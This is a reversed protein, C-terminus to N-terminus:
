ACSQSQFHVQLLLCHADMVMGNLWAAPKLTRLDAGQLCVDMTKESVQCITENELGPHWAAEPSDVLCYTAHLELAEWQSEEEDADGTFDIVERRTPAAQGAAPHAEQSICASAQSPPTTVDKEAVPIAPIDGGHQYLPEYSGEGVCVADQALQVVQQRVEDADENAAPDLAFAVSLADEVDIEAQVEIEVSRETLLRCSTPNRQLLPALVAQDKGLQMREADCAKQLLYRKGAQGASLQAQQLNKLRNQRGQVLLRAEIIRSDHEGALLAVQRRLFVRYRANLVSSVSEHQLWPARGPVRMEPSLDGHAAEAHINGTLYGARLRVSCACVCLM